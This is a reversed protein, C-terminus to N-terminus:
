CACLALVLFGHHTRLLSAARQVLCCGAHASCINNVWAPETSPLFGATVLRRESLRVGPLLNGILVRRRRPSLGAVCPNGALALRTLHRALALPRLDALGAVGCRQAALSALAPLPELATVPNGTCALHQLLPCAALADLAQM